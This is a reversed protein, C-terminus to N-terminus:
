VLGAPISGLEQQAKELYRTDIYREPASDQEVHADDHRYRRMIDLNAQVAARAVHMDRPVAETAIHDDWARDLYDPGVDMHRAATAVSAAKDDYLSASMELAVRLLTILDAENEVAWDRHVNVSAFAFDPILDLVLGLNGFGGDEALYNHPDTQMAADIERDVLLRHRPPVAGAEAITYDGPYELGVGSLISRFLSSTGASLASVGLTKGRLDALQTIDPQVIISHTLKNLNGAVIRLPGGADVDLLVHEPSGIGVQITGDRLATTVADIGYLVELEVDLGAAAFRGRDDGAYFPVNFFGHTVLGVRITM